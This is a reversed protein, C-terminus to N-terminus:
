NAEAEKKQRNFQILTFTFIVAFLIWAVASARGFQGQQFGLQYLYVVPTLTANNPFGVVNPQNLAFVVDFLQLALIVTTATVFFTTPKLAPLTVNSFRQFANAGDLEAAEYLEKSISQLGAIFLVTNFGFQSWAFVVVVAALAWQETSLWGIEVRTPLPDGPLVLNILIFIEQIAYNFFGVSSNLMQKWILTVGIVGAVSPIFFIARFVKSGPLRLEILTALILAPLVALPVATVLFIAINSMSRWFLPDLAGVDLGFVDAIKTFGHNFATGHSVLQLGVTNLYNDLGVFKLQNSGNWDFFSMVLSYLLPGALFAMFGLLSPAVFLWGSLKEEESQSAQVHRGMSESLLARMVLVSLVALIVFGAALANPSFLAGLALFILTFPNFEIVWIVLGLAAIAQGVRKLYTVLRLRRAVAATVEVESERDHIRKSIRESVVWWAVGTALVALGGFAAYFADGMLNFLLIWQAIQFALFSSVAITLINSLIAARRSWSSAKKLGLAIAVQAIAFLAGIAALAFGFAGLATFIQTTAATVGVAAAVLGALVFHWIPTIAVANNSVFQMARSTQKSRVRWRELYKMM